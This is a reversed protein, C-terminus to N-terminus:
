ADKWRNHLWFWHDPEMRIYKEIIGNVKAVNVAYTRERDEFEEVSIPEEVVLEYRFGKRVVFLPVIPSGTLLSAAVPGKFCSTEIGLFPLVIGTDGGHQDSLFIVMKGKRLLTIMEKMVEKKYVIEVGMMQRYRNVMRDVYINGQERVIAYAPYSLAGLIAGLFEWNGFHATLLVVGKGRALERDMISKGKIDVLSLIKDRNLLPFRLFEVIDMTLNEYMRKLIFQAEDVDASLTRRINRLAMDKRSNPIMYFLRGLLRGLCLAVRRPLLVCVVSFFRLFLYLLYDGVRM